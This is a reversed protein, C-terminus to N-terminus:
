RGRRAARGGLGKPDRAQRAERAANQSAVEAQRRAARDETRQRSEGPSLKRDHRRRTGEREIRKPFGGKKDGAGDKNRAPSTSKDRKPKAAM